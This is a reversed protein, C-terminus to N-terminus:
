WEQRLKGAVNECGVWHNVTIKIKSLGSKEQSPQDIKICKSIRFLCVTLNLKICFSLRPWTVDPSFPYASNRIQVASKRFNPSDAVSKNRNGLQVLDNGMTGLM